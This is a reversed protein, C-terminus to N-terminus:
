EMVAKSGIITINDSYSKDNSTCTLILSNGLANGGWLLGLVLIMLLKKM